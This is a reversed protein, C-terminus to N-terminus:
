RKLFFVVRNLAIKIITIKHLVLHFTIRTCVNKTKLSTFNNNTAYITVDSDVVETTEFQKHGITIVNTLHHFM